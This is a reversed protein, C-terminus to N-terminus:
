TYKNAVEILHHCLEHPKSTMPMHDSGNIEIVDKIGSFEITWRQFDETVINDNDCVIYVRNVSGYKEDTFKKTKALDAVFFSAPRYLIKGLELDEAPSLNYIKSALYKPGFHVWMIPGNITEEWSFQNDVGIDKPSIEILKEFIYSPHHLTDPLVATVFVAASINQPYIEMALALNIGGLSHGVLIIKENEELLSMVEMLPENYEKFTHVEHFAKPHQGSAALDVVTVRHGAAELRQKVKYWVWSGGGAGHVLVFHKGNKSEAM